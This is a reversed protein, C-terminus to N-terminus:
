QIEEMTSARSRGTLGTEKTSIAAKKVCPEDTLIREVDLCRGGEKQAKKSEETWLGRRM